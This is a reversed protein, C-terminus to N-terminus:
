TTDTRRLARVHHCCFETSAPSVESGATSAAAVAIMGMTRRVCTLLPSAYGTFPTTM